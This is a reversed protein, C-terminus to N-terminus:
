AASYKYGYRCRHRIFWKSLLNPVKTPLVDPIFESGDYNPSYSVTEKEIDGYMQDTIKAMRVETYRM